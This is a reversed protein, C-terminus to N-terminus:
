ASQAFDIIAWDFREHTAVTSAVVIGAIERLFEERSQEFPIAKMANFFRLTSETGVQQTRDFVKQGISRIALRGQFATPTSRRVRQIREVNCVWVSKRGIRVEIAM